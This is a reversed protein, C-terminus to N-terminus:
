FFIYFINNENLIEFFLTQPVRGAGKILYNVKAFKLLTKGNKKKYEFFQSYKPSDQLKQEFIRMETPSEKELKYLKKLLINNEILNSGDFTNKM